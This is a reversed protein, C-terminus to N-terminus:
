LHILRLLKTYCVNYSTIRFLYETYRESYVSWGLITTFAFIALSVAVLYNGVSPLGKAFAASTLAAGSLGTTWEGSTIIM